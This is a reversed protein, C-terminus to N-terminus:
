CFFLAAVLLAALPVFVAGAIVHNFRGGVLLLRATNEECFIGYDRLKARRLTPLDVKSGDEFQYYLVRPPAHILRWKRAALCGFFLWAACVSWGFCLVALGAMKWGDLSGANFLLGAAAGGGALLLVLFRHAKEQLILFMADLEKLTKVGQDTLYEVMSDDADMFCDDQM